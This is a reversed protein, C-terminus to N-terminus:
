LPSPRNNLLRDAESSWGADRLREAWDDPGLYRYPGTQTVEEMPDLIFGHRQRNEEKWDVLRNVMKAVIDAHQAAVNECQNPDAHLDYLVIPDFQYFGPHYTQMFFWRSDRVSRQCAYLGHELVLHDRAPGGAARLTDVLSQGDWGPPVDLGVLQALTAVVDVNYVLADSVPPQPGLSPVKIILPIHNVSESAMGHEMYIGQEGFSEGHDATIIFCVDDEIGLARYADLIQGVHKDMYSIGGDYGDILQKFDTRDRIELPMKHPIKWKLSWHFFAASRPHSLTRHQEITEASPFAGIPQVSFQEMYADPYTYFGHPDWYQVHLFYNEDKGHAQIWPILHANIEDADENGRKLSNSHAEDWGANFWWALHRDAFSSFTITRYGAQRLYRTLFPYRQSYTEGEPHYFRGGPGWHTLAGHNIAFRGSVFSARAPVCPSAECYALNFRTGAAAIKDINPTTNRAYGYCGMHDPRLSDVDIYVIRM